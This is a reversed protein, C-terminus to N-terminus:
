SAPDAQEVPSDGLKNVRRESRKGPRSVGDDCHGSISIKADYKIAFCFFQCYCM